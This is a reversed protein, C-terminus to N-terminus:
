PNDYHALIEKWLTCYGQGEFSPRIPAKAYHRTSSGAVNSNIWLQGKVYDPDILHELGHSQITSVFRENYRILLSRGQITQLGRCQDFLRAGTALLTSQAPCNSRGHYLQSNPDYEKTRFDNYLAM